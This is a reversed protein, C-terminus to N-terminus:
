PSVDTVPSSDRRALYAELLLQAAAGDRRHRQQRHSLGALTMMKAAQATTLREDYYIIPQSIAEALLTGFARVSAAAQSQEGRLDVPLGLIVLAIGYEDIVSVIATIADHDTTRQITPLVATLSTAAVTRACGIRVSGIDLSLVPDLRVKRGTSM